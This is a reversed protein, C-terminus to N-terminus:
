IDDEYRQVNFLRLIFRDHADIILMGIDAQITQEWYLVFLAVLLYGLLYHLMYHLVLWIVEMMIM